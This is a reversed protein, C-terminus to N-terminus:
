PVVVCVVVSVMWVIPTALPVSTVQVTVTRSPAVPTSPPNSVVPLTLVLTGTALVAGTRCDLVVVAGRGGQLKEWILNQLAADLTLGVDKGPVSSRQGLVRVLRSRNDVEVQQGGERGRLYSDLKAEVGDRGVLDRPRYGYEGWRRLEKQSIQGVYGVLHSVSTGLPYERQPRSRVFVGPLRLWSEEVAAAVAVPLDRALPVPIFPAEYNDEFAELLLEPDRGLLPGLHHCLDAIEAGNRPLAVVDLALRDRALFRGQRDLIRGRQPLQVL